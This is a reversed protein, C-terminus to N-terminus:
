LHEERVGREYLAVANEAEAPDLGMAILSDLHSRPDFLGVPKTPDNGAEGAAPNVPTAEQPAVTSQGANVSPPVGGADRPDTIPGAAPTTDSALSPPPAGVPSVSIGGGPHMVIQTSDTGPQGVVPPVDRYGGADEANRKASGLMARYADVITQGTAGDSPILDKSLDDITKGVNTFQSDAATRRSQVEGLDQSRQTLGQDRLKGGHTATGEWLAGAQQLLRLGQDRREPGGARRWAQLQENYATLGGDDANYDPTYKPADAPIPVDGPKAGKIPQYSVVGTRPDAIAQVDEGNPGGGKVVEGAKPKNEKERDFQLRDRALQNAAEQAATLRAQNNDARAQVQDQRIQTEREAHTVRGYGHQENWSRENNLAQENKAGEEAKTANAADARQQEPTRPTPTRTTAKVDEVSEVITTEAPSGTDTKDSPDAPRGEKGIRFTVAKRQSQGNEYTVVLRDRDKSPDKARVLKRSIVRGFQQGYGQIISDIYPPLGAVQADSGDDPSEEDDSTVKVDEDAV